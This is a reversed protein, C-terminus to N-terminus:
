LLVQTIKRLRNIAPRRRATSRATPAELRPTPGRWRPPRTRMRTKSAWFAPSYRRRPRWPTRARRRRQPQRALCPTGFQAADAGMNPCQVEGFLREELASAERLLREAEDDRGEGMLAIALAGKSNASWVSGDPFMSQDRALAERLEKEAAAYEGRRVDIVGHMLLWNSPLSRGNKTRRATIDDLERAAEDLRGQLGRLFARFFLQADAITSGKGFQKEDDEILETVKREAAAYDERMFELQGWFNLLNQVTPLENPTPAAHTCRTTPKM